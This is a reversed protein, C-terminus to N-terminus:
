GRVAPHYRRDPGTYLFGVQFLVLFPVRATSGMPWGRLVVTGTFHWRGAGARHAAAGRLSQRYRKGCGSTARARSIRYKPTRAFESPKGSAAGRVGGRANNVALGIGVAMVLPLYRLRRRGTPSAPRASRVGHLLGGALGDDGHVAAPRRAGDHARRSDRADPRAGAPAPASLVVLLPYAFHATLHFFAEIKAALAHPALALVRRCCSARRRCPARPGATSSRASRRSTRAPARVALRRGRRYVFKWGALQARYSLDLDETLTDHQWGGADDIAAQAGCAPPATSTSSAARAPARATARRRLPRRADAGAGADAALVDRNLHGWRTQVMGVKPDTFHRVIARLFDPPPVFDADFIPSSSARARRRPRRRARRGQLGHPRHPPHVRHRARARPLRACTRAAM